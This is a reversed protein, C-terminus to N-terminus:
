QPWERVSSYYEVCGSEVLSDAMAIAAEHNGLPGIYVGYLNKGRVVEMDVITALGDRALRRGLDMARDHEDFSAIHVVYHTDQDIESSDKEAIAVPSRDSTEEHSSEESELAGRMGNYFSGSLGGFWSKDVILFSLAAVVAITVVVLAVKLISKEGSQQWHGSDAEQPPPGVSDGSRREAAGFRAPGAVSVSDLHKASVEQAGDLYATLLAQSAADNVLRPSGESLEFVRDVAGKSFLKTPRGCLTARHHLYEDTEARSLAEMNYHVRIRQKLQVMEPTGIHKVLAPQGVLVICLGFAGSENINLLLRIGELTNKDLNQAEDVILLMRRGEDELSQLVEKFAFILDAMDARRDFEFGSDDLVMKLLERFGLMTTNIVVVKFMQQVKDVLTQIALTKGLGIEGSLLILREGQELGYVLHAMTEEHSSSVYLLRLNPDLAYPNVKLGFHDLYM